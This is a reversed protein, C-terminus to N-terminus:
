SNPPCDIKIWEEKDSEDEDNEDDLDLFDKDISTTLGKQGKQSQSKPTSSTSSTRCHTGPKTKKLYSRSSEKELSDKEESDEHEKKSSKRSPKDKQLAELAVQDAKETQSSKEKVANKLQRILQEYKRVSGAISMNESFNKVKSMFPNNNPKRIIVQYNSLRGEHEDIKVKLTGLTEASANRCEQLLQQAAQCFRDIEASNLSSTM